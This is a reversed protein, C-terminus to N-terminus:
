EVWHYGYYGYHEIARYLEIASSTLHNLAILAGGGVWGGVFAGGGAGGGCPTSRYSGVVQLLYSRLGKARQQFCGLKNWFIM